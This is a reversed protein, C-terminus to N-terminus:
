AGPHYPDDPFAVMSGSITRREAPWSLLRYSAGSESSLRSPDSVVRMGIRDSVAPSQRSSWFLVIARVVGARGRSRSRFIGEM